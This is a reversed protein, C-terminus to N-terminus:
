SLFVITLSKEDGESSTFRVSKQIGSFFREMFLIRPFLCVKALNLGMRETEGIEFDQVLGQSHCQFNASQSLKMFGVSLTARDFM